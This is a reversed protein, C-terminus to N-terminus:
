DLYALMNRETVSVSKNGSDLYSMMSEMVDSSIYHEAIFQDIEDALKAQIPMARVYQNVDTSAQHALKFGVLGVSATISLPMSIASMSSLLTSTGVREGLLKVQEVSTMDNRRLLVEALGLVTGFSAGVAASQLIDTVPVGCLFPQTYYDYATMTGCAIDVAGSGILIPNSTQLGAAIELTGIGFTNIGYGLGWEASGTIVSMVNSGAHAVAFVSAGTDLLNFSVWPMIKSPTVGLISSLGRITEEPLIPLGRKTVIDTGLHKYFDITSLNPDRYAKLADTLFHHNTIRHWGVPVGKPYLDQFPGTCDMWHGTLTKGTTEFLSKSVGEAVAYDFLGLDALRSTTVAPIGLGVTSFITETPDVLQALPINITSSGLTSMAELFMVM